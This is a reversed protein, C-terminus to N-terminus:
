NKRIRGYTDWKHGPITGEAECEECNAWSEERALHYPVRVFGNGKCEPCTINDQKEM